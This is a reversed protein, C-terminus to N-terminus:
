SNLTKKFRFHYSIRFHIRGYFDCRIYSKKTELNPMLDIVLFKFIKDGVLYDNRGILGCHIKNGHKAVYLHVYSARTVSLKYFNQDTSNKIEVSRAEINRIQCEDEIKFNM